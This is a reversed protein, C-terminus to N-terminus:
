LSSGCYSSVKPNWEKNKELIIQKKFLDLDKWTLNMIEGQRMGTSIALVVVCYLYPNKSEQCSSLLRNREDANLFRVRGQPEKPKTIKRVPSTEIWEYEKFGITYVHSLAAIYRNVTAPSRITGHSTQTSLLEDRKEAIRSPTIDSLLYAGLASKWYLLHAKKYNPVDRQSLYRDIMEALTHKKAESTKFHRGERIAAEIQQEWRKADTKRLFTATQTPHGKMRIIVQYRTKGNKDDREKITGM